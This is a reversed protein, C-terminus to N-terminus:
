DSQKLLAMFEAPTLIKISQYEKLKLLHNDGSIVYKANHETAAELLANDPPDEKIVDLENHTEVIRSARALVELFRAQEEPTFKLRPYTLVRRVEVLQKESVILEFNADLVQTFVQRPKGAWGFASVLVNTDIVIRTKGM